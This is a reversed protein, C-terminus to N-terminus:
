SFIGRLRRLLVLTLKGWVKRRLKLLLKLHMLSARLTEKEYREDGGWKEESNNAKWWGKGQKEDREKRLLRAIKVGVLRINDMITTQANMSEISLTKRGTVVRKLPCGFNFFILNRYTWDTILFTRNVIKKKIQAEQYATPSKRRVTTIGFM